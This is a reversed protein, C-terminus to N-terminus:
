NKNPLRRIQKATFTQGSNFDDFEILPIKYERHVFGCVHLHYSVEVNLEVSKDGKVLVNDIRTDVTGVNKFVLDYNGPELASISYHGNKSNQVSTILMENQYAYVCGFDVAEETEEDTIQGYISAQGFGNMSVFMLGILAVLHFSMRQNRHDCQFIPFLPTMIDGIIKM